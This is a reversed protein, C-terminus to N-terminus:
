WAISNRNFVTNNKFNGENNTVGPIPFPLKSWYEQRSFEMPLAAPSCLILCSETVLCMMIKLNSILLKRQVKYMRDPLKMQLQSRCILDIQPVPNEWGLHRFCDAKEEGSGMCRKDSLDVTKFYKVGNLNKKLKITILSRVGRGSKSGWSPIFNRQETGVVIDLIGLTTSPVWSAKSLGYWSDTLIQYKDMGLSYFKYYICFEMFLSKQLM